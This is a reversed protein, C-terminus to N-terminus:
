SHSIKWQGQQTLYVFPERQLYEEDVEVRFREYSQPEIFRIMMIWYDTYDNSQRCKFFRVDTEKWEGLKALLEDKDVNDPIQCSVEGLHPLNITFPDVINKETILEDLRISVPTFEKNFTYNIVFRVEGSEEYDHEGAIRNKDYPYPEKKIKGKYKMFFNAINVAGYYISPSTHSFPYINKMVNIFSNVATDHKIAILTSKPTYRHVTKRKTLVQRMITDTVFSSTVTRLFDLTRRQNGDLKVNVILNYFKDKMISNNKM